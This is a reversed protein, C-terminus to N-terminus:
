QTAANLSKVLAQSIEMGQAMYLPTCGGQSMKRAVNQPSNYDDNTVADTYHLVLEYNHALAYRHAAQYIDKYIEQLHEGQKKAILIKAEEQNDQIDRTLDRMEKSIQEKRDATTEPKRLEETLQKRRENFKRHKENFPEIEKKFQEQFKIHKNYYKVVYAINFLAIRTRPQSNGTQAWLNGMYVSTGLIGLIGLAILTRKV